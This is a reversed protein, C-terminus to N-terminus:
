SRSYIFLAIIVIILVSFGIIGGILQGAEDGVAIGILQPVAIIAAMVGLIAFIIGLYGKGEHEKNFRYILYVVGIIVWIFNM